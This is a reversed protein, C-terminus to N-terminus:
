SIPISLNQINSFQLLKSSSDKLPNVELWRNMFKNTLEILTAFINLPFKFSNKKVTTKDEEGKEEEKKMMVVGVM